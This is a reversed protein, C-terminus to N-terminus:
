KLLVMRKTESFEGAELKYFYVGSAFGRGDFEVSYYGANQKDYVLSAVENGLVDYVKLKAFSTVRLEYSIVTKPNFPNPYNQSLSFKEPNINIDSNSTLISYKVLQISSGITIGYGTGSIYINENNDTLIKNPIFSTDNPDIFSNSWFLSGEDDYVFTYYGNTGSVRAAIYTKGNDGFCADKIYYGNQLQTTWLINGSPDIQSIYNSLGSISGSCMLNGVSDTGTYDSPLSSQFWILDGFSNLKLIGGNSGIFINSIRDTTISLPIRNIFNKTWIRNGSSDLKVVATENNFGPNTVNAVAIIINGSSDITMYPIPAYDGLVYNSYGCYQREWISNGNLDYKITTWKFNCNTSDGYSNAGSVYLYKNKYVAINYARDRFGMPNDFSRFWISDGDSNYKITIFDFNFPNVWGEGTVYVNGSDDTALAYPQFSSFVFPISFTRDWLLNGSSNFKLTLFDGNM